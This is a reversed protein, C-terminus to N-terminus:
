HFHPHIRFISGYKNVILVIENGFWFGQHGNSAIQIRTIFIKYTIEKM